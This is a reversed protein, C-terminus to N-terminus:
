AGRANRGSAAAVGHSALKRPPRTAARTAARARALLTARIAEVEEGVIKLDACARGDWAWAAMDPHLTTVNGGNEFTARDGNELYSEAALGEALIIDHRPLEIHFYEVFEVEQQIVNLGNILYRIPVLVGQAYIAHQPSLFLPRHPRRPGFAGADIRVPWAHRPTPHRACNVRRRGIWRIPAAKGSATMVMQGVRLDEVAVEGDPTAIRTGRAFCVPVAPAVTVDAFGGVNEVNFQDDTYTGSLQLTAVTTANDDVQLTTGSLIATTATIGNLAFTDGLKAAITGLFAGPLDLVITDAGAATGVTFITQGAGVAGVELTEGGASFTDTGTGTIPGQIVLGPNTVVVSGSNVLASAITGDATMLGGAEITIGGTVITGVDLVLGGGAEVTLANTTTYDRGQDVVLTGANAIVSLTQEIPVYATGNWQNIESGPGDMILEAYGVPNLPPGELTNINVVLGELPGGLDVASGDGQAQFIGDFLTNGDLEAISSTDITVVGQAQLWNEIYIGNTGTILAGDEAQVFADITGANVLTGTLVMFNQLSGGLLGASGAGFTLTGEVQLIAADYPDELTGLVNTTGNLILTNVVEAETPAITVTYATTIPLADIVVDATPDNPVTGTSWDSATTWDGTTGTAWSYTAM